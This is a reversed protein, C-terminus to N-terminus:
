TYVEKFVKYIAFLSAGAWSVGLFLAIWFNSYRFYDFATFQIYSLYQAPGIKISNTRGEFDITMENDLPKYVISHILFGELTGLVLYDSSKLDVKDKGPYDPFAIQSDKTIATVVDGTSESRQTIDLISIPIPQKLFMISGMDNTYTPMMLLSGNSAIEIPSRSDPLRAKYTLSNTKPVGHIVGDVLTHDAIIRVDGDPVVTTSFANDATVLQINLKREDRTELTIKSDPRLRVEDLRGLNNSGIRELTMRSDANTGNARFVVQAKSIRLQKWASEPYSDQALSYRDPDAVLFTSPTLTISSFKEISLAEVRTSALVPVVETSSNRSVVFEVRNVIVTGRIRTKISWNLLILIIVPPILVISLCVLLKTRKQM